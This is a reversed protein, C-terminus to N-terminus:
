YFQLDYLYEAEVRLFLVGFTEGNNNNNEGSIYKVM